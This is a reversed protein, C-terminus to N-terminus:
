SNEKVSIKQSQTEGVFGVGDDTWVAIGYVGPEVGTLDWIVNAGSGNIKGGTVTYNYVLTDNEADIATTIVRIEKKADLCNEDKCGFVGNTRLDLNTVVSPMNRLICVPESNVISDVFSTERSLIESNNENDCLYGIQKKPPHLIIKEVEGEDTL